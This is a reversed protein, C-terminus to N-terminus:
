ARPRAPMVREPPYLYAAFPDDGGQALAFAPLLLVLCIGRLVNM